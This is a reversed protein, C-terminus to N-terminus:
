ARSGAAGPLLLQNVQLARPDVGVILIVVGLVDRRRLYSTVARSNYRSNSVSQFGTKGQRGPNATLKQNSAQFKAKGRYSTM